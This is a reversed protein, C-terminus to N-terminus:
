TDLRRNSDAYDEVRDFGLRELMSLDVVLKTSSFWLLDEEGIKLTLTGDHDILVADLDKEVVHRVKLKLKKM